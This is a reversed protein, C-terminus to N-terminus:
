GNGTVGVDNNYEIKESKDLTKSYKEGLKHVRLKRKAEGVHPKKIQISLLFYHWINMKTFLFLLRCVFGIQHGIKVRHSFRGLLMPTLM